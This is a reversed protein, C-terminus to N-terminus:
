PLARTNTTDSVTQVPRYGLSSVRREAGRRCMNSRRAPVPPTSLYEELRRCVERWYELGEKTNRWDLGADINGCALKIAGRSIIPDNRDRRESGRRRAGERRESYSVLKLYVQNWYGLGETSTSWAFSRMLSDAAQAAAERNLNLPTSM